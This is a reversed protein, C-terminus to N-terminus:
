LNLDLEPYENEVLKWGANEYHLANKWISESKANEESELDSFGPDEEYIFSANTETLLYFSNLVLGGTANFAGKYKRSFKDADDTANLKGVSVSKSISGGNSNYGVLLAIYDNPEGYFLLTVIQTEAFSTQINGANLGVIGGTYSSNSYGDHNAFQTKCNYLHCSKIKADTDNNGAVGGVRVGLPARLLNVYFYDLYCYQITGRYNVGAVGGVDTTSGKLLSKKSVHNHNATVTGKLVCKEILSDSLENSGVLGGVRLTSRINTEDGNYSVYNYTCTLDTFCKSSSITGYNAGTFSGCYAMENENGTTWLPGTKYGYTMRFTCNIILNNTIECNYITGNNRGCLVGVESRIDYNYSATSATFSFGGSTIHVNEITGHNIGCLFGLHANENRGVNNVVATIDDFIMNKITGYNQGFLGYIQSTESNIHSVNYIKHNNGDFVGNFVNISFLAEGDCNIDNDLLYTNYTGEEFNRLDSLNKIHVPEEYKLYFTLNGSVIADESVRNKFEQDSYIGTLQYNDIKYEDVFTYVSTGYEYKKEPYTVNSLNTVFSVNYLVPSYVAFIEYNKIDGEVIEESWHGSYHERNPFEVNLTIVMERKYKTIWNYEKQAYLTNDVYYKATLTYFEFVPRILYGLRTTDDTNIETIETGEGPNANYTYDIGSYDVWKVFHYYDTDPIPLLPQIGTNHYFGKPNPNEIGYLDDDDIYLNIDYKEEKSDPKQNNCGCIGLSIALLLFLRRIKM